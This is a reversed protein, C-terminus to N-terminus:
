QLIYEITKNFNEKITNKEDPNTNDNLLNRLAPWIVFEEMDFVKYFLDKGEDSIQFRAPINPKSDIKILNNDKFFPITKQFETLYVKKMAYKKGEAYVGELGDPQDLYYVGKFFAHLAPDTLIKVMQKRTKLDPIKNRYQERIKGFGNLVDKETM